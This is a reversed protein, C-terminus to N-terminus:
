PEGVGDGLSSADHAGDSPPLAKAIAARVRAICYQTAIPHDSGGLEAPLLMVMRGEALKLAELTEDRERELEAIRAQATTLAELTDNLLGSRARHRWFAHMLTWIDYRHVLAYQNPIPERATEYNVRIRKEAAIIQDDGREMAPDAWLWPWFPLAELSINVERQEGELAEIRDAAEAAEAKFADRQGRTSDLEAATQRLLREVLGDEGTPNSTM